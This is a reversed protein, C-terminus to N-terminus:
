VKKPLEVKHNFWKKKISEDEENSTYPMAEHFEELVTNVRALDESSITGKWDGTRFTLHAALAQGKHHLQKGRQIMKIISTKKTVTFDKGIVLENPLKV